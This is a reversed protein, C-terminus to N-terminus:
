DERTTSHTLGREILVQRQRERAAAMIQIFKEATATLTEPPTEDELIVKDRWSQPQRNKLWFQQATVNPPLVRVTKRTVSNGEADVEEKLETVTSGGLASHFLAAAVRADAEVKGERISESFDSHEKKWLNLTSESIEFFNAMGRDTMGLLALKRAQAAYAARYKSPRGRLNKPPSGTTKSRDKM